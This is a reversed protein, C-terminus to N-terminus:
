RPLDLMRAAEACTAPPRGVDRALAAAEAVLEANSPAREGAYDELGVRLHGGRALVAKAFDRHALLDGGVLAAAWIVGTGDLMELYADLARLTPPLGFSLGPRGDLASHDGGFYLKVLAGRGLRGARHYAITARLFSPDFVAISPAIAHEAYASLVRDLLGYGNIYIFQRDVGPTGDAGGSAFNVSGPDFVGMRGGHETVCAICHDYKGLASSEDGTVTPYLIADPRATLVPKWAEGYRAAAASGTLHFDDLHNHLVAAGADICTLLDASIEPLSVPNRPNRAKGGFGSVAVEIITATM